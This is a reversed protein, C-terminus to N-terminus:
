FGLRCQRERQAHRSRDIGISADAFEAWGFSVEACPRNDTGNPELAEQEVGPGVRDPRVQANVAVGDRAGKLPARHRM